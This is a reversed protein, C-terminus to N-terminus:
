TTPEEERFAEIADCAEAPTLRGVTADDIMIVPALSCCGLCAVKDVTFDRRPDTDSEPAIALHRRIEETIHRAGSVHCATGHCVKIMHRGAPTRRFQAYFTSVSAIHAPTIETLACVRKMADDPLYGYHTQIAQLITIAADTGHGTRAVVADVFSLDLKPPLGARDIGPVSSSSRTVAARGAGRFGSGQVGFGEARRREAITSLAPPTQGRLSILWKAGALFLVSAAILAATAIKQRGVRRLSRKTQRDLEASLASVQSPDSKVAAELTAIQQKDAKARRVAAYHDAVLVVVSALVILAGPIAVSAAIIRQMRRSM